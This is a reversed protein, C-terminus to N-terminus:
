NRIYSNFVMCYINESFSILTMSFCTIISSFIIIYFSNFFTGLLKSVYIGGLVMGCGFFTETIGVYFVSEKLSHLIFFPLLVAIFPSIVFNYIATIIALYFENKILFLVRFGNKTKRYHEKNKIPKNLKIKYLLSLATIVLLSGIFLLNQNSIILILFGSIAPGLVVNISSISGAIRFAQKKFDRTCISSIISNTVPTFCVYVANLYIILLSMYIVNFLSLVSCFLLLIFSVFFNLLLVKRVIFISSIKSFFYVVMLNIIWSIFMVFGILKTDAFTSIMYWAFFIM